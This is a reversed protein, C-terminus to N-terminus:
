DMARSPLFHDRPRGSGVVTYLVSALIASGMGTRSVPSFVFNKPTLLKAEAVFSHSACLVGHPADALLESAHRAAPEVSGPDPLASWDLLVRLGVKVFAQGATIARDMDIAQCVTLRERSRLQREDLVTLGRSFGNALPAPGAVLVLASGFRRALPLATAVSPWPSKLRTVPHSLVMGLRTLDDATDGVILLHVRAEILDAHLLARGMAERVPDSSGLHISSAGHLCTEFRESWSPM